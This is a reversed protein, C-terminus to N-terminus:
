LITKFKSFDSPHGYWYSNFQQNRVGSTANVAALYNTDFDTWYPHILVFIVNKKRSIHVQPHGQGERHVGRQLALAKPCSLALSRKGEYNREAHVITCNDGSSGPARPGKRSVKSALVVAM